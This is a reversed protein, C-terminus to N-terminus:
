GDAPPMPAALQTVPPSAALLTVSTPPLASAGGPMAVPEASSSAAFISARCAARATLTSATAKKLGPM